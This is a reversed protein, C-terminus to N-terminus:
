PIGIIPFFPIYYSSPALGWEPPLPIDFTESAGFQKVAECDTNMPCSTFFGLPKSTTFTNPETGKVILSVKDKESAYLQNPGGLLKAECKVKKNNNSTTPNKSNEIPLDMRFSGDEETTAVVVKRVKECTILVKIGTVMPFMFIIFVFSKM